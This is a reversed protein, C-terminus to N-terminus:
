GAREGLLSHPLLLFRTWVLHFLRGPLFTKSRGARLRKPSPLAAVKQMHSEPTGYGQSSEVKSLCRNGMGLLRYELVKSGSQSKRWPWSQSVAGLPLPSSLPSNVPQKTLHLNQIIFAEQVENREVELSRLEGGRPPAERCQLIM